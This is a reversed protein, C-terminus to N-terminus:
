EYSRRTGWWLLGGAVAASAAVVLTAAVPDHMRGAVRGSVIVHLVHGGLLWLPPLRPGVGTVLVIAPAVILMGLAGLSGVIAGGRIAGDSVIVDGLIGVALIAGIWGIAVGRRVVLAALGGVTVGMLAGARETDPVTGWAGLVSFSFAVVVVWSPVMRELDKAGIGAFLSAAGAAPLSWWMTLAGGTRGIWAVAAVAAVAWALFWDIRPILLVVVAAIVGVALGKLFEPQVFLELLTLPDMGLLLTEEETRRRAGRYNKHVDYPSEISKRARM